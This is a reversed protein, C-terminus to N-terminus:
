SMPASNKTLLQYYSLRSLFAVVKVSGSIDNCQEWSTEWQDWSPGLQAWDVDEM